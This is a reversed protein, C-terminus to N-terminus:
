CSQATIKGMSIGTGAKKAEIMIAPLQMNNRDAM